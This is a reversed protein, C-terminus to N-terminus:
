FGIVVIMQIFLRPASFATRNRDDDITMHAKLNKSRGFRNLFAVMAHELTASSPTRHVEHPYRFLRMCDANKCLTGEGIENEM